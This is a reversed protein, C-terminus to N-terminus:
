DVGSEDLWVMCDYPLDGWQADWQARLVDNREMAEKSIHKHTLALGCVARSVTALSVHIGLQQDLRDQIEDLF